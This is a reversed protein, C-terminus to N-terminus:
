VRNRISLSNQLGLVLPVGGCGFLIWKHHSLIILFIPKAM